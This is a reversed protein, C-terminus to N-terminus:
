SEPINESLVKATCKDVVKSNMTVTLTEAYDSVEVDFEDYKAGYIINDHCEDLTYKTTTSPDIRFILAATNTTGSKAYEVIQAQGVPVSKVANVLDEDTATNADLETLNDDATTADNGEDTNYQDIVADFDGGATYTDLYGQLRTNVAAVEEDSLDASDDDVLSIEIIKYTLINEEYYAQIEESTMGYEGGEDYLGYFLTSENYTTAMYMKGFSEKNFGMDIIKSNYVSDMYSDYSAIDEESYTLGHQELLDELAVQRTMTDKALLEIYQEVTVSESDYTLTQSWPDSYYYLYNNYYTQQYANYLYALYEGTTFTTDGITAANKPTSCGSLLLSSMIVATSAVACAARKLIKAFRM